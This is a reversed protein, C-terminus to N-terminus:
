YDVVGDENVDDVTRRALLNLQSELDAPSLNDLNPALYQYIAETLASVKPGRKRADAGRMIARWTGTVAGADVDYQLDSNFDSDRGGNASVLYYAADDLSETNPLYIGLLALRVLSEYGDWTESGNIDIVFEEDWSTGSHIETGSDLETIAVASTAVPGRLQVQYCASLIM